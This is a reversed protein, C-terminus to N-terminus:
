QSLAFEVSESFPNNQRGAKKGPNLGKVRVTGGLPTDLDGDDDCDYALEEIPITLSPALPDFGEVDATSFDFEESCDAGEIGDVDYDVVICVSYKTANVVPDWSVVLDPDSVTVAVNAPPDLSGPVNNRAFAVLGIGLTLLLLPLLIKKM